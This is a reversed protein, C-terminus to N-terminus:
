ASQSVCACVLCCLPAPRPSPPRVRALVTAYVNELCTQSQHFKKTSPRTRRGRGGRRADTAHCIYGESLSKVDAALYASETAYGDSEAAVITTGVGCECQGVAEAWAAAHSTAVADAWATAYSYAAACGYANRGRVTCSGYVETVAKAFAYAGKSNEIENYIDAWYFEGVKATCAYLWAKRM